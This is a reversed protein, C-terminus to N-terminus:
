YAVAATATSCAAFGVVAPLVAFGRDVGSSQWLLVSACVVMSGGNLCIRVASPKWSLPPAM